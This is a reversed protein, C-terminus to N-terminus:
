FPLAQHDPNGGSSDLSQMQLEIKRLGDHDHPGVTSVHSITMPLLLLNSLKRFIELRTVCALFVDGTIVLDTELVIVLCVDPSVHGFLMKLLQTLCWLSHKWLSLCAPRQHFLGPLFAYGTVSPSSFFTDLFVLCQGGTFCALICKWDSVVQVSLTRFLCGSM